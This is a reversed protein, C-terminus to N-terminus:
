NRAQAFSLFTPLLLLLRILHSSSSTLSTGTELEYPSALLLAALATDLFTVCVHAACGSLPFSSRIASIIISRRQYYHYWQGM